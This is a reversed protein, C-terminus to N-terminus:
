TRRLVEAIREAETELNLRPTTQPHPKIAALRSQLAKRKNDIETLLRDYAATSRGQAMAEIQAKVTADERKELESLESMLAVSPDVVTEAQKKRDYTRLAATFREPRHALYHIGRLVIREVVDGRHMKRTCVKGTTSRSPRSEQCRYYLVGKCRDTAMSRGCEHCRLLGSLLNKRAKPGSFLQPNEVLREQCAEWTAGDVLPTCSLTVQEELPGPRSYVTKLGKQMRAEDTRWQFRGFLPQGKYVPNQLIYRVTSAYWAKGGRQTPISNRNMWKALQRLSEGRACRAFLEQIIRAEQEVVQYMGLQHSPYDGRLVDEKLVIHYGVPSQTRSPQQGQEARKRRGCVPPKRSKWVQAM